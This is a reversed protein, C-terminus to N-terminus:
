CNVFSLNVIRTQLIAMLPPAQFVTNGLVYYIGRLETEEKSSRFIKEIVFLDNEKDATTVTYQIGTM